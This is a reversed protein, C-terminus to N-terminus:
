LRYGSISAKVSLPSYTLPRGYKEEALAAAQTMTQGALATPVATGCRYQVQPNM